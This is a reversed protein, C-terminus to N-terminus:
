KGYINIDKCNTRTKKNLKNGIKKNKEELIKKTKELIIYNTDMRNYKNKQMLGLRIKMKIDEYNDNIKNTKYNKKINIYNNSNSKFLNKKKEILRKKYDFYLRFNKMNNVPYYNNNNKTYEINNNESEKKISYKEEEFNNNLKNNLDNIFEDYKIEKSCNNIEKVTIFENQNPNTKMKENNIQIDKIININNNKKNNSNYEYNYENKETNYNIVRSKKFIKDKSSSTGLIEKYSHNNTNTAIRLKNGGYSYKKTNSFSKKGPNKEVKSYFLPKIQNKYIVFSKILNNNTETKIVNLKTSRELNFNSSNEESLILHNNCSKNKIKNHCSCRCIHNNHRYIPEIKKYNKSDQNPKYNM